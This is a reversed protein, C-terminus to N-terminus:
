HESYELLFWKGRCKILSQKIRSALKWLIVYQSINKKKKDTFFGWFVWCMQFGKLGTYGDLPDSGSCSLLGSQFYNCLGVEQKM